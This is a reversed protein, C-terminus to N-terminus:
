EETRYLASTQGGRREEEAGRGEAEMGVRGEEEQCPSGGGATAELQKWWRASQEGLRRRTPQSPGLQKGRWWGTELLRWWWRKSQHGLTSRQWRWAQREVRRSWKAPRGATWRTTTGMGPRGM